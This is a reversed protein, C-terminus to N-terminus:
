LKLKFYILLALTIISIIFYGLLFPYIKPKRVETKVVEYPVRITTTDRIIKERYEIKTKFQIEKKNEIKGVLNHTTTDVYSQAKALSTEMKLTDYVPVIDKIREVPIFKLCDVQHVVTSDKYTYIIEERPKTIACSTIMLAM